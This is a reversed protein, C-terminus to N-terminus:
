TLKETLEEEKVPVDLTEKTIQLAKEALAATIENTFKPEIKRFRYAFFGRSATLPKVEELSVAPEGTFRDTYVDKITYIRNKVLSVSPNICVVKDGAKM